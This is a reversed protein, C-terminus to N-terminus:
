YGGGGFRYGFTLSVVQNQRNLNSGFVPDFETVDTLGRSYRADVYFPGSGVDLGALVGYDTAAELDDRAIDDLVDGPAFADAKVRSSVPVGLYGGLSVGVDLASNTPFAIRLAVPIELYDIRTDLSYDDVTDYYSEGKQSYLAEAQVSLMPSVPFDATLGGVFGLIVESENADDGVFNATNLGAKLGFTAQASAPVALLLALASLLFRM